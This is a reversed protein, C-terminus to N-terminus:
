FEASLVRKRICLALRRRLRMLRQKLYGITQNVQGAIEALSASREYRAALVQRDADVLEAICRGLASVEEDFRPEGPGDSVSSAPPAALEIASATLTMPRKKRLENMALNRATERLWARMCAGPKIQKRFAVLFVEQTLDEAAAPDRTLALLLSYVETRHATVLADVWGETESMTIM